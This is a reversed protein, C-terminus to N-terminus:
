PVPRQGAVGVVLVLVLAVDRVYLVRPSALGPGDGPPKEDALEHFVGAPGMQVDRSRGKGVLLAVFHGLAAGPDRDAGQGLEDAAPSAAGPPFSYLSIHKSGIRPSAPM